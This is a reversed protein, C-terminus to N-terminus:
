SVGTGKPRYLRDIKDLIDGCAEDSMACSVSHGCMTRGGEEVRGAWTGCPYRRDRGYRRIDSSEVFLEPRAGNRFCHYSADESVM